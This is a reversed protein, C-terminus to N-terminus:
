LIATKHIFTTANKPRGRRKTTKINDAEGIKNKDNFSETLTPSVIRKADEIALLFKSILNIANQVHYLDRDGEATKVTLLFSRLLEEFM